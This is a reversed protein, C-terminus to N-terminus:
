ETVWKRLNTCLEIIEGLSVSKIIRWGRETGEIRVHPVKDSGIEGYIHIGAGRNDRTDLLVMPRTPTKIERKVPM